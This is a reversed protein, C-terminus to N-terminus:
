NCRWGRRRLFPPFVKGKEMETAAADYEVALETLARVAQRDVMELAMLRYRAAKERLEFAINMGAVEPAEVV